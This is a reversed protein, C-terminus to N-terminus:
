FKIEPSYLSLRVAQYISDRFARYKSPPLVNYIRFQLAFHQPLKNITYVRLIQKQDNEEPQRTGPPQHILLSPRLTVLARAHIHKRSPPGRSIGKSEIRAHTLIASYESLIGGFEVRDYIVM